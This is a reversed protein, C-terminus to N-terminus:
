KTIIAVSKLIQSVTIIEHWVKYYSGCKTIGAVSKLFKGECKTIVTM